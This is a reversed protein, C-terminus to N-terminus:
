GESWVLLLSEYWRGLQVLALKEPWRGLRVQAYPLKHDALQEADHRDRVVLGQACSSQLVALTIFRDRVVM